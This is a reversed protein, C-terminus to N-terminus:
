IARIRGLDKPNLGYFSVRPQGKGKINLSWRCTATPHFRILSIVHCCTNYFPKVVAFTKAKNGWIASSIIQESV